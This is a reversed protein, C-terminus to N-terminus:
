RSTKAKLTLLKGESNMLLAEDKKIDQLRWSGLIFDGKNIFLNTKGNNFLAQHTGGIEASGLFRWSQLLLEDSAIKAKPLASASGKSKNLSHVSVEIEDIALYLDDIENEQDKRIAEIEVALNKLDKELKLLVPNEEPSSIPSLWWYTLFAGSVCLLLGGLLLLVIGSHPPLRDQFLPKKAHPFSTPRSVPPDIQPAHPKRIAQPDPIAPDDGLESLIDDFSQSSIHRTPM